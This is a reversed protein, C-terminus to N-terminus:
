RMFLAAARVLVRLASKASLHPRTSFIEFGLNHATHLVHEGGAITLALEARLRKDDITRLLASGHAFYSKTRHFLVDFCPLFQNRVIKLSIKEPERAFYHIAEATLGHEALIDNPIFIRGEPVDRSFDQWFNALQLGTCVADSLPARTDDYLGYLRLVLEGVPNASFTCYRELDSWSEAQRFDSDMRFATLLKQFPQAPIQKEWMTAQLALFIPNGQVTEPSLLMTELRMLADDKYEAANKESFEDAIDDALRAFAYISFFHPQLRKPVLVSAVPFNEYHSRAIYRCVAFAAENSAENAPM